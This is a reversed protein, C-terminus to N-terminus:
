NQLFVEYESTIISIFLSMSILFLEEQIYSRATRQFDISTEYSYIAM